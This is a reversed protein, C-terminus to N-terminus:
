SGEDALDPNDAGDDDGPGAPAPDFLGYLKAMAQVIDLIQVLRAPEIAGFDRLSYAMPEIDALTFVRASIAKDPNLRRFEMKRGDRVFWTDPHEPDTAMKLRLWSASMAFFVKAVEEVRFFPAQRRHWNRSIIMAETVMYERAGPKSPGM